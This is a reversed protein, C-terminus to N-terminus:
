TCMSLLQLSASPPHLDTVLFLVGVTEGVDEQPQTSAVLRGGEVKGGRPFLVVNPPRM